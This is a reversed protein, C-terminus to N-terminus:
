RRVETPLVLDLAATLDPAVVPANRVEHARTVPTPVLIGHAGAAQAARVDSEIDGIVVTACPPVGLEACAALVMGPRPKRCRCGELPGHPCVQWTDFPGLLEVIRRHVAAVQALSLLGRAVGSQNTVVGTRVGRARLAALAEAAGPMPTVLEPDGNYPVDRVLTGDRDFLVLGPWASHVIGSM